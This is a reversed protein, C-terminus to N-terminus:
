ELPPDFLSDFDFELDESTVEPLRYQPMSLAHCADCAGRLARGANPLDAPTETEAMKTAASQADLALSYFAPFSEWIAPLALTVPTEADPDYQGTTPPFLHPVAGLMAAITRAAARLDAPDAPEGAAHSDIPQMLTQLELMLRRRAAIVDDPKTSGTWGPEDTPGPPQALASSGTLVVTVALAAAVLTCVATTAAANASSLASAASRHRSARPRTPRMSIRKM